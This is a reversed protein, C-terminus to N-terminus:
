QPLLWTGEVSEQDILVLDEATLGEAGSVRMVTEGNVLILKEAAAAPNQQVEVTPEEGGAFDWVLVLQDEAADYDM